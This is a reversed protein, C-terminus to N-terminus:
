KKLARRMQDALRSYAMYNSNRQRTAKAQWLLKGKANFFKIHGYFEGKDYQGSGFLIADAGTKKSIFQLGMKRMENKLRSSFVADGSLRQVYITRVQAISNVNPKASAQLPLARCLAIAGIFFIASKRNM